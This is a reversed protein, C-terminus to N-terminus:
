KYFYFSNKRTRAKGEIHLERVPTRTYEAKLDKIKKLIKMVDEPRDVGLAALKGSDLALFEAMGIKADRFTRIHEFLDLGALIKTVEGLDQFTEEEALQQQRSEGQGEIHVSKGEFTTGHHVHGKLEFIKSHIKYAAQRDVGRDQLTFADLTLFEEMGIRAERFPKVYGELGLERLITSVKELDARVAPSVYELPTEPSEGDGSGESSPYPFDPMLDRQSSTIRMKGFRFRPPKVRYGPPPSPNRPVPTKKPTIETFRAKPERRENIEAIKRLITQADMPEIPDDPSLWFLDSYSNMSLFNAMGVNADAFVGSYDKSLDLRRLIALVGGINKRGRVDPSYRRRLLSPEAPRSPTIEITGFEEMPDPSPVNSLRSPSTRSLYLRTPRYVPTRPPSPPPLTSPTQPSVVPSPTRSYSHPPSVEMQQRQAVVEQRAEAPSSEYESQLELEEHPSSKLPSVPRLEKPIILLIEEYADDITPRNEPKKSWLAMLLGVFAKPLEPDSKRSRRGPAFRVPIRFSNWMQPKDKERAEYLNKLTIHFKVLAKPDDTTTGRGTILHYLLTGFAFRASFEKPIFGPTDPARLSLLHSYGTSMRPHPHRGFAEFMADTLERRADDDLAVIARYKMDTKALPDSVVIVRHPTARILDIGRPSREIAAIMQDAIEAALIMREHLTPQHKQLFEPLTYPPKEPMVAVTPGALRSVPEHYLEQKGVNAWFDRERVPGKIVDM